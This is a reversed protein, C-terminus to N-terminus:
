RGFWGPWEESVHRVIRVALEEAGQKSLAPKVQRVTEVAAWHCEHPKGGMRRASRHAKAVARYLEIEEPQIERTPKSQPM